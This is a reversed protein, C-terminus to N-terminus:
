QRSIKAARTGYIMLIPPMNVTNKKEPIIEPLIRPINEFMTRRSLNQFM